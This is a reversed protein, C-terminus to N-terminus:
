ALLGYQRWLMVMSRLVIHERPDVIFLVFLEFVLPMSRPMLLLRAWSLLSMLLLSLSKLWLTLNHAVRTLLLGITGKDGSGLSEFSVTQVVSSLLM